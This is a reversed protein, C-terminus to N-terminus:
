HWDIRFSTPSTPEASAGDSDSAASAAIPGALPLAVLAAAAALRKFM